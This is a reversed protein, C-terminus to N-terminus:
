GGLGLKQGGAGEEGTKWDLGCYGCVYGGRGCARKSGSAWVRVKPEGPKEVSPCGQLLSLTSVLGSTPSSVHPQSRSNVQDSM